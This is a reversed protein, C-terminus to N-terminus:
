RNLMTIKWNGVSFLLTVSGDTVLVELRKSAIAIEAPGAPCALLQYRIRTMHTYM